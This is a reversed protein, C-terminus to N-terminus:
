ILDAMPFLPVNLGFLGLIISSSMGAIFIFGCLCNCFSAGLTGLFTYSSAFCRDTISIALSRVFSNFPGPNILLANVGIDVLNLTNAGSNFLAMLLNWDLTSM